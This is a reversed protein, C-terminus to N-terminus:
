CHQAVSLQRHFFHLSVGGGEVWGHQQNSLNHQHASAIAASFSVSSLQSSSADELRPFRRQPFPPSPPLANTLQLTEKTCYLWM